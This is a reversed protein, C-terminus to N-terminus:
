SPTVRTRTELSPSGLCTNRLYSTTQPERSSPYLRPLLFSGITDKGISLLPGTLRDSDRQLGFVLPFCTSEEVVNGTEFTRVM